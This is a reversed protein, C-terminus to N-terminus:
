HLYNVTNVCEGYNSYSCKSNKNENKSYFRIVGNSNCNLIISTKPWGFVDRSLKETENSRITSKFRLFNKGSITKGPLIVECYEDGETTESIFNLYQTTPFFISPTIGTVHIESNKEVIINFDKDIIGFSPPIFFLITGIIPEWFLSILIFSALGLFASFFDLKPAVLGYFTCVSIFGIIFAIFVRRFLLNKNGNSDMRTTKTQFM